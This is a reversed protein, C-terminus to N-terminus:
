SRALPENLLIYGTTRPYENDFIYNDIYSSSNRWALKEKYSGDYPYTKYISEIADLFYRQASGFRAFTKPNDFDVVAKPVFRSREQKLEEVYGISEVDQKLNELDKQTVIQGSTKGFLDKISM